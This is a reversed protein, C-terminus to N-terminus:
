GMWRSPRRWRWLRGTSPSWGFIRWQGLRGCGTPAKPGGRCDKHNGRHDAFYEWIIVMFFDYSIHTSSAWQARIQYVTMDMKECCTFHEATDRIDKIVIIHALQIDMWRFIYLTDQAIWDKELNIRQELVKWTFCGFFSLKHQYFYNRRNGLSEFMQLRHVNRYFALSLTSVLEHKSVKLGLESFPGKNIISWAHSIHIIFHNEPAVFTFKLSFIGFTFMLDVVFQYKFTNNTYDSAALPQLDTAINWFWARM